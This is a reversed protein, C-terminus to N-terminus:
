HHLDNSAVLNKELRALVSQVGIDTERMEEIKRLSALVTTHDRGGFLRGIEPLSLALQSRCLTMAVQRALAVQRQRSPGKIDVPRLDYYGAVYECIREPTLSGAGRRFMPSLYEKAHALTIEAKTVSVFASLRLLAGELERVSTTIQAALYHAVDLPLRIGCTEAKRHLIAVRTEIEPPRIDAILGWSLRTKLREELGEIEHPYKDSTVVIQKHTQYLSNFTHFFEDQSADKGALFQIDDILLLDCGTRFRKRFADFKRERIAQIYANVWQEASMYVIRTNPNHALATLGIAHLLHTKGIGVPGFLFLPSYQSGPQEAVANCAAFGMQNSPGPVFTDFSYQPNLPTSSIEFRSSTDESSSSHRLPFISAPESSVPFPRPAVIEAMMPAPAPMPAASRPEDVCVLSSDFALVVEIKRGLVNNAAEIIELLYHDQIWDRHFLSPAAVTLTDDAFSIPKLPEFFGQWVFLSLRRRLCQMIASYLNELESNASVSGAGRVFESRHHNNPEDRMAVV